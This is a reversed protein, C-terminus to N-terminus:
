DGDDDECDASRSGVGLAQIAAEHARYFNVNAMSVGPPLKGGPQALAWSAMGAQFVSWGFVVYERTSIGASKLAARAAPVADLRAAQADISNDDESDACAAGAAKPGANLKKMAQTYKALAAETLVYANIERSDRDAAPQSLALAPALLVAVIASLRRGSVMRHSFM